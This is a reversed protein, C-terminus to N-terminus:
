SKLSNRGMGMGAEEKNSFIFFITKTHIYKFKLIKLFSVFWCDDRGERWVM